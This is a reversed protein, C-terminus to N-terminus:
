PTSDVVEFIEPPDLQIGAERLRSIVAGLDDRSFRAHEETDWLSVAVITGGSRDMAEYLRELGPLSAVAATVESALAAAKDASAPDFHARTLRLHM